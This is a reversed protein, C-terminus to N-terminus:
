ASRALTASVGAARQLEGGDAASRLCADLAQAARRREVSRIRSTEFSTFGVEGAVVRRGAQHIEVLIEFELKAPDDVSLPRLTATVEAPLPFLFNEFSLRVSNWVVYFSQHPWRERYGVEFAGLFMQRTAEVVVMGQVHQGTQHDLLLENDGHVRLQAEFRHQGVPRLGTLLVNEVRHKHVVDWGAPEPNGDQLRVRDSLRRRQLAAMIHEHEYPTIGQGVHLLLQDAIGDLAGSGIMECLGSVTEVREDDVYGRFRDAVVFMHAATGRERGSAPEGAIRLGQDFGGQPGRDVGEPMADSRSTMERKVM